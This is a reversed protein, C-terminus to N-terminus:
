EQDGQYPNPMEAWAVVDESKACTGFIIWERGDRFGEHVYRPMTEVRTTLLVSQYNKPLRDKVSIWEM